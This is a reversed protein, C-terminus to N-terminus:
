PIFHGRKVSSVIKYRPLLFYFKRVNKSIVNACVGQSKSSEHGIIDLTALSDLIDM